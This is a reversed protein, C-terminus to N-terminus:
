GVAHCWTWGGSPTTWALTPAQGMLFRLVELAHPLPGPAGQPGAPARALTVAHGTSPAAALRVAWAFDADPEDGFPAYLTPLSVDYVVVLVEPHGDALLGAAEVFGAEATAQGGAIALSNGLDKRSISYQGAVGNHVSLGFSTPSLAEGRALAGLLEVSRGADGHRSAFVTPMGRDDGQCWAAVQFALRGLREIRRRTMPPVEALPPADTGTPSTPAASAAWAQWAEPTTLGPAWAAQRSIHFRLASQMRAAIVVTAAARLL